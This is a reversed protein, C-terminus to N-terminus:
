QPPKHQTNSPVITWVRSIHLSQSGKSSCSEFLPGRQGVMSNVWVAFSYLVDRFAKVQTFCTLRTFRNFITFGTIFIGLFVSVLISFIQIKPFRPFKPNRPFRLSEQQNRSKILCKLLHKKLSITVLTPWAGIKASACWIRMFRMVLLFFLGQEHPLKSICRVETPSVTGM